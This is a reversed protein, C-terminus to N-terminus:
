ADAAWGRYVWTHASGHQKRNDANCKDSYRAPETALHHMDIAYADLAALLLHAM